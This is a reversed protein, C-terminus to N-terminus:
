WGEEADDDPDPVLDEPDTPPINILLYRLQLYESRSIEVAEVPLPNTIIDDDPEVRRLVTISAPFADITWKWYTVGETPFEFMAEIEEDQLKDYGHTRCWYIAEEKTLEHYDFWPDHSLRIVLLYGSYNGDAIATNMGCYLTETRPTEPSWEPPPDVPKMGATVVYSAMKNM